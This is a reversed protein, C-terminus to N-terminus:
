KAHRLLHKSPEVYYVVCRAGGVDQLQQYAIPNLGRRILNRLNWRAETKDTKWREVLNDQIEQIKEKILDAHDPNWYPWYLWVSRGMSLAAVAQDEAWKALPRIDEQQQSCPTCKWGDIAFDALYAVFM